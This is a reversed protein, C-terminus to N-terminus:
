GVRDRSWNSVLRRYLWEGEANPAFRVLWTSGSDASTEASRGDAAYFGPVVFEGGPGTFTVDLRYDRFPNPEALESTQPGDFALTVTHWVQLDGSINAQPM